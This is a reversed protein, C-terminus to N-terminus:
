ILFVKGRDLNDIFSHIFFTVLNQVSLSRTKSRLSEYSQPPISVFIESAEQFHWLPTSSVIVMQVTMQQHTMLLVMMVQIVQPHTGMTMATVM